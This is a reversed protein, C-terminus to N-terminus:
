SVGNRATRGDFRIQEPEYVFLNHIRCLTQEEPPDISSYEWDRRPILELEADLSRRGYVPCGKKAQKILDRAPTVYLYVNNYCIWTRLADALPFLNNDIM